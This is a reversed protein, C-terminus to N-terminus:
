DDLYACLVFWMVVIYDFIEPVFCGNDLLIIQCWAIIWEATENDEEIWYAFPYM